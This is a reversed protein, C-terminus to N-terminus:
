PCVCIVDIFQMILRPQVINNTANMLIVPICIQYLYSSLLEHVIFVSINSAVFYHGDLTTVNKNQIFNNYKNGLM